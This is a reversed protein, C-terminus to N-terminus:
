RTLVQWSLNLKQLKINVKSCWGTSCPVQARSVFERRQAEGEEVEPLTFPDRCDGREGRSRCTFCRRHLSSTREQEQSVVSFRDTLGRWTLTIRGAWCWLPPWPRWWWRSFWRERTEGKCVPQAPPVTTTHLAAPRWIDVTSQAGRWMASPASPEETDDSRAECEVCDLCDLCDEDPCVCFTANMPWIWGSM